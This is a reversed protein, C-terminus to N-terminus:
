IQKNNRKCLRKVKRQNGKYGNDFVLATLNGGPNFICYEVKEMSIGGQKLYIFFSDLCIVKGLYNIYKLIYEM